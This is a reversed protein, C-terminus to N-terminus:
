AFNQVSPKQIAGDMVTKTYMLVTAVQYNLLKVLWLETKYSVVKAQEGINSVTTLLSLFCLLANEERYL